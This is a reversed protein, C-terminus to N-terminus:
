AILEVAERPHNCYSFARARRLQRLISVIFLPTSSPQGQWAVTLVYSLRMMMMMSVRFARHIDRQHHHDLRRTNEWIPVQGTRNWSLWRFPLPHHSADPSAPQTTGASAFSVIPTPGNRDPSHSPKTTNKTLGQIVLFLQDLPPCLPSKDRNGNGRGSPGQLYTRVM